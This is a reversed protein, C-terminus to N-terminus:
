GGVCVTSIKCDWRENKIGFDINLPIEQHIGVSFQERRKFTPPKIVAKALKLCQFIGNETKLSRPGDCSFDPERHDSRQLPL